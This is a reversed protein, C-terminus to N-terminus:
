FRRTSRTTGATSSACRAPRTSSTARSPHLVRSPARRGDRRAQAHRTRARGGPQGHGRHHRERAEGRVQVHARHRLLRHLPVHTRGGLVRGPRLAAARGAKWWLAHWRSLAGRRLVRVTGRTERRGGRLHPQPLEHRLLPLLPRRAGGDRGAGVDREQRPHQRSGARPPLRHRPLDLRVPRRGARVLGRLRERLVQARRLPRPQRLPLAQGRVRPAGRRPRVGM